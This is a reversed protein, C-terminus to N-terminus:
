AEKEIYGFESGFERNLEDLNLIHSYADETFTNKLTFPVKYVPCELFKYIKNIGRKRGFFCEEYTVDLFEIEKKEFDKRWDLAMDRAGEMCERAWALDVTIDPYDIRSTTQWIDTTHAFAADVVGKLLNERTLLIKKLDPMQNMVDMVIKHDDWTKFRFGINKKHTEIAFLQFYAEIFNKPNSAKNKGIGSAIPSM